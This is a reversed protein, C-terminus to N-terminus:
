LNSCIAVFGLGIWFRSLGKIRWWNRIKNDRGIFINLKIMIIILIILGNAVHNVRVMEVM